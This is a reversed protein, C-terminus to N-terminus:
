AALRLPARSTVLLKLHPAAALLAALPLAQTLLQEFNDLVLLLRREHLYEVLTEELSQGPLERVALTQAITPVVLSPDRVAALEVVFVGEPFEELLDAALQL